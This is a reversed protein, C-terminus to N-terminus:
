ADYHLFNLITKLDTDDAIHMLYNDAEIDWHKAMYEYISGYEEMTDRSLVFADSDRIENEDRKYLACLIPFFDARREIWARNIKGVLEPNHGNTTDMVDESDLVKVKDAQSFGITCVIWDKDNGPRLEDVAIGDDEFGTVKYLGGEYTLYDGVAIGAPFLNALKIEQFKKNVFADIEDYYYWDTDHEHENELLVFEKAWEEFMNLIEDRSKKCENFIYDYVGFAYAQMTIEQTTTVFTIM